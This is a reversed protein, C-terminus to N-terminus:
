RAAGAALGPPFGHGDRLVGRKVLNGGNSGGLTTDMSVTCGTRGGRVGCIWWRRAQARGVMEMQSVPQNIM